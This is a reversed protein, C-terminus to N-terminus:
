DGALIRRSSKRGGEDQPTTSGLVHYGADAHRGRRDRGGGTRCLRLAARAVDDHTVNARRPHIRENNRYAERFGPLSTAALTKM